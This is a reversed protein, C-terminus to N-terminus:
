RRAGLIRVIFLFLNIFDLYLELAGLIVVKGEEEQGSFGGAHIVRLKQHDYATLASFVIVGIWCFVYHLMPSKFAFNILMLAMLGFLNM